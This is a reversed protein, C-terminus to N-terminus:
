DPLALTCCTGCALEEAQAKGAAPWGRARQCLPPAEERPALAPRPPPATVSPLVQKTEPIEPAPLSKVAQIGDLM